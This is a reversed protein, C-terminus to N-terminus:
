ECGMVPNHRRSVANDMTLEEDAVANLLDSVFEHGNANWHSDDPWWLLSKKERFVAEARSAIPQTLDYFCIGQRTCIDCFAEGASGPNKKSRAGDLYVNEKSPIMCVVFEVGYEECANKMGTLVNELCLINAHAGIDKKTRAAVRRYPEYFLMPVGQYEGKKVLHEESRPNILVNRGCLARRVAVVIPDKAVRTKIRRVMQLRRSKWPWDGSNFVAYCDEDLDNGPFLLLVALTQRCLKPKLRPLEIMLNAMQSWPSAGALALNYTRIGHKSQLYWAVTNTFTNGTGVAFSDGLLLVQYNSVTQDSAPMNCFGYEDAVFEIRRACRVTKDGAMAALDGYSLMRGHSGPFYREVLPMPPWREIYKEHPRYYPFSIMRLGVDVLVLTLVLSSLSLCLRKM